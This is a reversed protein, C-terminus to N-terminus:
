DPVYEDMARQILANHAERQQPSMRTTRQSAVYLDVDVEPASPDWSPAAACNCDGHSAFHATAEKYVGGRGALMRCFRCAGPRTVRQWGSAFPDRSVNRQITARGAALVYKGAAATLGVLMTEPQPTWLAGATRKVTGEVADLYPSDAIVARFSGGVGALDRQDEYWDAAVSAAAEGYRSVLIPLQQLFSDRVNYPKTPGDPYQSWIRSWMRDLDREVLARVGVQARRLREADAASVM